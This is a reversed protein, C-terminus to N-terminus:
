EKKEKKEAEQKAKKEAHEEKKEKQKVQQKEKMEMGHANAGNNHPHNGPNGPHAKKAGAEEIEPKETDPRSPQEPTTKDGTPNQPVTQTSGAKNNVQSEGAPKHKPAPLTKEGVTNQQSNQAFAFASMMTLSAIVLGIKKM